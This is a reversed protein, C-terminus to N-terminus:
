IHKHLACMCGFIHVTCVHYIYQIYVHKGKNQICEFCSHMYYYIGEPLSVYSAPIDGNEIPFVDEFPPNEM